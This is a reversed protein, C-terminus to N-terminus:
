NKALDIIERKPSLSGGLEVTEDGGQLNDRETLNDDRKRQKKRQKNIESLYVSSSNGWRQENLLAADKLREKLGATMHNPFLENQKKKKLEYSQQYYDYGVTVLNELSSYAKRQNNQTDHLRSLLENEKMEM